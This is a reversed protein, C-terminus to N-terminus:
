EDNMLKSGPGSKDRSVVVTTIQCKKINEKISKGKREEKGGKKGEREGSLTPIDSWQITM